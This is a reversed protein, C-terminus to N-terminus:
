KRMLRSLLGQPRKEEIGEFSKHMAHLAAVADAKPNLEALPVGIDISESVNAFDNPVKHVERTHLVKKIDEITTNSKADYRNVLVQLREPDIGLERTLIVSLRSANRLDPVSQQIVMLIRDSAQLMAAGIEDLHRPVEAVIREHRRLLVEMLSGLAARTDIQATSEEGSLSLNSAMVGLGSGHRAIFGEVALEDLESVVYLADFLSAQPHLDLYQPLPAFQHDLDLLLTKRHGFVQSTYAYNAALFSSGSGGKANIFTVVRSASERELPQIEKAIRRISAVLEKENLPNSLFDRAGAQMSLRMLCSQEEGGVVVLVPRKEAPHAVLAQLEVNSTKTLGLILIAPKEDLDQLPDNHGNLLLRKGVNVCGNAELAEAIQDVTAPDRGAILINQQIPM